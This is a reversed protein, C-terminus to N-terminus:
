YTLKVLERLQPLAASPLEREASPLMESRLLIYIEEQAAPPLDPIWLNGLNEEVVTRLWDATKDDSLRPILWELTWDFLGGSSQWDRGPRVM